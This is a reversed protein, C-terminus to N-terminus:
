DEDMAVTVVKEVVVMVVAEVSLAVPEAAVGTWGSMADLRSEVM